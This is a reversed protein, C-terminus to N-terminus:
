LPRLSAIVNGDTGNTALVAAPQGILGAPSSLHLLFGNSLVHGCSNSLLCALEKLLITYVYEDAVL